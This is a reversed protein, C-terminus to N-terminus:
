KLAKDIAYEAFKKSNKFAKKLNRKEVRDLRKEQRALKKQARREEPSAEYEEDTYDPSGQMYAKKRTEKIKNRLRQERKSQNLPSKAMFPSGFRNM